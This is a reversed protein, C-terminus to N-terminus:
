SPIMQRSERGNGHTLFLCPREFSSNTTQFFFPPEREDCSFRHLRGTLLLVSRGPTICGFFFFTGCRCPPFPADGSLSFHPLPPFWFWPPPVKYWLSSTISPPAPFLIHSELSSPSAEPSSREPVHWAQVPPPARREHCSFFPLAGEPPRSARVFYPDESVSFRCGRAPQSLPKRRPSTEARFL